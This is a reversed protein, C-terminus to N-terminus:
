QNEPLLKSRIAEKWKTRDQQLVERLEDRRKETQKLDDRAGHLETELDATGLDEYDPVPEPVEHGFRSTFGLRARLTREIARVRREKIADTGKTAGKAEIYETVKEAQQSDPEHEDLSNLSKVVPNIEIGHDRLEERAPDAVFVKLRDAPVDRIKPHFPKAMHDLKWSILQELAQEPGASGIGFMDHVISLSNDPSPHDITRHTKLHYTTGSLNSEAEVYLHFYGYCQEKEVQKAVWDDIKPDRIENVEGRKRSNGSSFSTTSRESSTEQPEEDSSSTDHDADPGFNGGLNSQM